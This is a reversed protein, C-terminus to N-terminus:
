RLLPIVRRVTSILLLSPIREKPFSEKARIVGSERPANYEERTLETLWAHSTVSFSAMLVMATITILLKKV